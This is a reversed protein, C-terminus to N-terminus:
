KYTVMCKSTTTIDLFSLRNDEEFEKYVTHKNAQWNICRFGQCVHQHQLPQYYTYCRPCLLIILTNQNDALGLFLQCKALKRVNTALATCYDEM